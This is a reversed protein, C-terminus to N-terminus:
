DGANKRGLIKNLTEADKNMTTILRERREKTEQCKKEAFAPSLPHPHPNVRGIAREPGCADLLAIVAPDAPYAANQPRCQRVRAAFLMSTYLCAHRESIKRLDRAADELTHVNEPTMEVSESTAWDFLDNCNIFVAFPYAYETNFCYDDSGLWWHDELVGILQHVQELTYQKM